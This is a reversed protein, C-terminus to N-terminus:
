YWQKPFIVQDLKPTGDPNRVLNDPNALLFNSHRDRVSDLALSTEGVRSDFSVPQDTTVECNFGNFKADKRASYWPEHTSAQTNNPRASVHNLDLKRNEAKLKCIADASSQQQPLTLTTQAYARSFVQPTTQPQMTQLQPKQGGQHKSFPIPCPKGNHYNHKHKKDAVVAQTANNITVNVTGSGNNQIAAGPVTVSVTPASDVGSM